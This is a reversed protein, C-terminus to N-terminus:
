VPLLRILINSTQKVTVSSNSASVVIEPVTTQNKEFITTGTAPRLQRKDKNFSTNSQDGKM